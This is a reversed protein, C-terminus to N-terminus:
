KGDDFLKAIEDWGFTARDSLPKLMGMTSKLMAAFATRPLTVRAVVPAKVVPPPGSSVNEPFMPDYFGFSLIVLDNVFTVGAANSSFIQKEGPALTVAIVSPAAQEEPM